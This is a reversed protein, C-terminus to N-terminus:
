MCLNITFTCLLTFLTRLEEEKIQVVVGNDRFKNLKFTMRMSVDNSERLTANADSGTPPMNKLGIFQEHVNLSNDVRHLFNM